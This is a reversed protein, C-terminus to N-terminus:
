NRKKLLRNIYKSPNKKFQKLAYDFTPIALATGVATAGLSFKAFNKAFKKSKNLFPRFAGGRIRRRKNRMLKSPSFKAYKKPIAKHTARSKRPM